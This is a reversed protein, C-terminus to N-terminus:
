AQNEVTLTGANATNGYFTSTEECWIGAEGLYTCPRLTYVPTYNDLLDSASTADQADSGYIRFVSMKGSYPQGQHATNIGLIIGGSPANDGKTFTYSTSGWGFRKPTLFLTFRGVSFYLNKGSVVSSSAGYYASFQRISSTTGTGFIAGIQTNNEAPVLFLRQTAKITEDGLSVRYSANADPVIDTDIYATGDFVLYDYFVPAPAPPEGGATMMQRRRMLADM